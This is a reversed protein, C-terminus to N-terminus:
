GSVACILHEVSAVQQICLRQKDGECESPGHMCQVEQGEASGIYTFKLDVLSRLDQLVPLFSDECAKADPCKSMVFFEVQVKNTGMMWRLMSNVSQWLGHSKM